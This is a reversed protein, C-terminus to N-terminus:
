LRDSSGPKHETMQAQADQLCRDLVGSLDTGRGLGHAALLSAIMAVLAQDHGHGDPIALVTRVLADAEVAPMNLMAAAWRSFLKDRRARVLFRFEEDRAFRAEFAQERDYFTVPM